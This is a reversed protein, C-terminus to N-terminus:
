GAARRRARPLRQKVDFFDAWPDRRRRLMPPVTKTTLERPDIAHVDRWAIPAAVPLGPRRRASYPLVATAGEGNRLYDVYIKGARNQKGMTSTFRSPDRTALGVSISQAVAKVTAWGHEPVIPAVVHLGKGGTTKVFSQLGLSQFVARVELAADAVRAFPLAEDPDLDMAIWDPKEPDPLRAGWGHMEVAGFQVLAVLGAADEVYLVEHGGATEARITEPMGRTRKKQFFCEGGIGDPCRVLALPRRAVFPVMRPAVAEYYRALDIKTTGTAPDIVRTAHSIAVGAVRTAAGRADAGVAADRKATITPRPKAADRKAADIPAPREVVVDGARKDERLGVFRPHRLSGDRTWETFAVECVLSPEVWTVDRVRPAGDVRPKPVTMKGLKRALDVLVRASFGAGVKGAYRLRGGPPRYVPRPGTSGARPGDNVGLLLAGLGPRAGGPKTYGVIVVEQRSECKVKIWDLTRGPRHPQDLRKAVIGEIGRRCAEVFVAQAQEAGEIHKVYALPAGTGAAGDLISALMAKRVALPRDRVDFGDIFLLDFVFYVLDDMRGASLAHQLEQFRTRGEADVACVEGDFVANEVPLAAAAAGIKAFRESWDGGSRSAITAARERQRERDVAVLARYGDLKIEYGWPGGAPLARALTALEPTFADISPVPPARTIADGGPDDEADDRAFRDRKKILLWNQRREGGRGRIRVLVFAGHLREGDLTLELRGRKLGDHPDGAPTWTGHDWVLVYGGGYEGHPIAGEFGGYDLPHDEVEVALRKERPSLSPGKPVAWSKLVGDLELRFDFHLRRAHHRQIVYSLRAERGRSVAGRPEKTVAFDRKERYTALGARKM